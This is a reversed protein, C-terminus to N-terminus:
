GALTGGESWFQELEYPNHGLDALADQYDEPSLQGQVFKHTAQSAQFMRRMEEEWDEDTMDQTITAPLAFYTQFDIDPRPQSLSQKGPLILAGM